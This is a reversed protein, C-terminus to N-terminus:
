KKLLRVMYIGPCPTSDGAVIRFTIQSKRGIVRGKKDYVSVLKEPIDFEMNVFGVEDAKGKAIDVDAIKEGDIFIQSPHRKDWDTFRVLLSLPADVPIDNMYLAYQIFGKAPANRYTEGRYNGSQSGQAYSAEHGAESQQEGTAVYDIQRAKLAEEEADHLGMSSKAYQEATAQYWYCSYRAHHIEWFPRLTYDGKDTSISFQLKTIDKVKIRDLVDSRNGILMPSSSLTKSLGYAGFSHGMRQDGAYENPLEEYALGTAKAEDPSTATLQGGLLIPGYKFAIYDPYDPCTETRLKMPLDINLVEGVKWKRTYYAYSAEKGSVWSPVRVAITYKGAKNVTLTTKQEYPFKTDQRVSFKKSDLMSAVFQNVFLTDGSHTYAFHGYKSHNEMGTGVCCWMGENPQSYIRYAQPRLPTFYVYGGTVPDQTSLIHNWTAAEYFDAYRADHTDDFLGETLKLMNNTNCSEPGELNNIYESGREKALFHESISNGGICVTRNDVVDNWFNLAARHMREHAEDNAAVQSIREFGIYKPVQTNAHKGSLFKDDATQMGEIMVKHSYKKAADLYKTDKFLVYADALTENMGGHESGLVSQMEQDSLNSVVDVAWDSIKRFAERAIENGTYVYVDRLGALIKHECYFPVWGGYKYFPKLNHSYLGTWVQNIPQGGLFGKMGDTNNDYARQCDDLVAMMYDIRGKIIERQAKMNRDGVASKETAAYALALASLYHGGVHGELTWDSLGWNRFSPHSKEWGYYRSGVKSSLGSQRVFPTLLRDVDYQLLHNVNRDMASKFPGDLMTIENLNFHQQYLMNQSPSVLASAVLMSSIFIRKM